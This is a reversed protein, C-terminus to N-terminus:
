FTLHDEHNIWIQGTAEDYLWGGSAAEAVPPITGGADVITSDNNFPNMPIMQLYPGYAGVGPNPTGDLDTQQTLQNVIQAESPATGNHQAKFLEIQSRLVHLNYRANSSRAEETSDTYKPIITAALIALIVVVILVEVLTFGRKRKKRM